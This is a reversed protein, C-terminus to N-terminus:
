VSAKKVMKGNVLVLLANNAEAARPSCPTRPANEPWVLRDEHPNITAGPPAPRTTHAVVSKRASERDKDSAPQQDNRTTTIYDAVLTLSAVEGPRVGHVARVEEGRANPGKVVVRGNVKPVVIEGPEYPGRAPTAHPGSTLRIYFEPATPSPGTLWTFITQDYRPNISDRHPTMGAEVPRLMVRVDVVRTRLRQPASAEMDRLLRALESKRMVAAVSLRQETSLAGNEGILGFLSQEPEPRDHKSQAYEAVLENVEESIVRRRYATTVGTELDTVIQDLSLEEKTDIIIPKKLKKNWSISGGCKPKKSPVRG